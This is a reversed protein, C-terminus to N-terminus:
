LEVEIYNLLVQPIRRRENKDIMPYMAVFRDVVTSFCNMDILDLTKNDMQGHCNKNWFCLEIFNLPHQAVSPFYAKPLIHCVSFHFKENDDKCTKGGCHACIGKLDKRRELFWEWQSDDKSYEKEQQIRKASKKPIPVRLKEKPKGGMIKLMRIEAIGM